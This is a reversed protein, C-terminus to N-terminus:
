LAQAHLFLGRRMLCAAFFGDCNGRRRRGHSVRGCVSPLMSTQRIIQGAKDLNDEKLAQIVEPRKVLKLDELEQKLDQLGESTLYVEKANTM